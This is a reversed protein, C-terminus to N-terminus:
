SEIFRQIQYHLGQNFVYDSYSRYGLPCRTIKLTQCQAINEDIDLFINREQMDKQNLIQLVGFLKNELNISTNYILNKFGRSKSM